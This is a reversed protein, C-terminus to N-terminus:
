RWRMDRQNALQLRVEELAEAAKIHAKQGREMTETAKDISAQLSSLKDEAGRMQQEIRYMCQEHDRAHQEMYAKHESQTYVEHAPISNADSVVQVGGGGLGLLALVLVWATKSGIEINGEEDRRIPIRPVIPAELRAWDSCLPDRCGHSVLIALSQRAYPAYGANDWRYGRGLLCSELMRSDHTACGWHKSELKLIRERLIVVEQQLNNVNQLLRDNRENMAKSETVLLRMSLQISNNLDRVEHRAYRELDKLDDKSNKENAVIRRYLFMSLGFILAALVGHWTGIIFQGQELLRDFQIDSMVAGFVIGSYLLGVWLLFPRMM